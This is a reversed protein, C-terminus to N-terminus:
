SLLNTKQTKKKGGKEIWGVWGVQRSGNRGRDKRQLYIPGQFYKPVHKGLLLWPFLLQALLWSIVVNFNMFKNKMPEKQTHQSVSFLEDWVPLTQSTTNTIISKHKVQTRSFRSKQALCLLARRYDWSNPFYLYTSQPGLGAWPLGTLSYSCYSLCSLAAPM